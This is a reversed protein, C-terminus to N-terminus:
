RGGTAARAVSYGRRRHALLPRPGDIEGCGVAPMSVPHFASHPYRAMNRMCLAM